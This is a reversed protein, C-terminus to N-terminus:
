VLRVCWLSISRAPPSPLPRMNPTVEYHYYLRSVSTTILYDPAHEGAYSPVTSFNRVIARNERPHLAFVLPGRSVAVAAAPPSSLTDGWGHEVLVAPALDVTIATRGAACVVAFLTGAGVAM